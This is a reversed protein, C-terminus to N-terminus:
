DTMRFSLWSFSLLKRLWGFRARRRPFQVKLDGDQDMMIRLARNERIALIPDEDFKNPVLYAILVGSNPRNQISVLHWGEYIAATQILLQHQDMESLHQATPATPQEAAAEATFLSVLQNRPASLGLPIGISGSVIQKLRAKAALSSSSPKRATQLTAM